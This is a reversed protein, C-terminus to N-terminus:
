SGPLSSEGPVQGCQCGSRLSEAEPVTLFLHQRPNKAQLLKDSCGLRVLVPHSSSLGFASCAQPAQPSSPCSSADLGKSSTLGQCRGEGGLEKPQSGSSGCRPALMLPSVRARSPVSTWLWIIKVELDSHLHGLVATECRDSAFVVTDWPSCHEVLGCITESLNWLTQGEICLLWTYLPALCCSRFNLSACVLSLSGCIEWITSNHSKLIVM